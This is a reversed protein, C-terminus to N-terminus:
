KIKNIKNSYLYTKATLQLDPNCVSDSGCDKYITLTTSSNYQRYADLIPGSGPGQQNISLRLTMEAEMSTLKDRIDPRVYTMKYLCFRNEKNLEVTDFFQSDDTELFFHRRSKPQRVDLRIAIEVEITDPVSQGKYEFCYELMVCPVQVAKTSEPPSWQCTKKDLDIYQPTFSIDSELQIVPRAPIYVVTGSKYAGVVVDAYKNGTQVNFYNCVKM